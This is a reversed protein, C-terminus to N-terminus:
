ETKEKTIADIVAQEDPNLPRQYKAWEAMQEPTMEDPCYELMLNDIKAQKAALEERLRANSEEAMLRMKQELQLATNEAALRANEAELQRYDGYVM